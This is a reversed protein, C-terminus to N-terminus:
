RIEGDSLFFFLRRVKVRGGLFFTKAASGMGISYESTIYVYITSTDRSIAHREREKEESM